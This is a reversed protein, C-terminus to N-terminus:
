VAKATKRKQYVYYGGGAAAAVTTVVAAGIAVKKGTSMPAKTERILGKKLAYEELSREALTNVMERHNPAKRFEELSGEFLVEKERGFVGVKVKKTEAKKEGALLREYAAEAGASAAASILQSTTADVAIAVAEAIEERTIGEHAVVNRSKKSETAVQTQNENAM